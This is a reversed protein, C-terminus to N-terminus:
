LCFKVYALTGERVALIGLCVPYAFRYLSEDALLLQTGRFNMTSTGFGRVHVPRLDKLQRGEEQVALLPACQRESRCSSHSM